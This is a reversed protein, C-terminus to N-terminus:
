RGRGPVRDPRRPRSPSPSIAELLAAVSERAEPELSFRNAPRGTTLGNSTGRHKRVFGLDGLAMLHRRLTPDSCHSRARLEAATAVALENLSRLISLRVPDTLVEIWTLHVGGDPYGDYFM